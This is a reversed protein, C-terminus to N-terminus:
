QGALATDTIVYYETLKQPTRIHGTFFLSDFVNVQKENQENVVTVLKNTEPSAGPDLNLIICIYYKRSRIFTVLLSVVVQYHLM